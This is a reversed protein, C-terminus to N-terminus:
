CIEWNSKGRGHMRRRVSQGVWRSSDNTRMHCWLAMSARCAQAWVSLLWTPSQAHFKKRTGRRQLAHRNIKHFGIHRSPNIIRTTDLHHFPDHKILDSALPASISPNSPKVLRGHVRLSPQVWTRTLNSKAIPSTSVDIPQYMYIRVRHRGLNYSVYEYCRCYLKAHFMCTTAEDAV